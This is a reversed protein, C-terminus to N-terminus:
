LGPGGAEDSAFKRLEEVVAAPGRQRYLQSLRQEEVSVPVSDLLRSEELAARSPVWVSEDDLQVSRVYASMAEIEMSGSAGSPRIEFRGGAGTEFRQGTALRTEGEVPASGVSYAKGARDHVLWGLEFRRVGRGARNRLVIRPADSVTGTVLATGHELILPAESDQVFAFQIERPSGFAGATAPGEGGLRVDLRPRAAQRRLSAQMASALEGRGGAQWRALFFERDRRAEMERVRMKRASDLRDPGAAALTDFLVSDAAIRVVPGPPLPLPRLMRLNVHVQFEEGRLAHLSPISVAARGGMMREHANVALTMARVANGGEHRFRISGALEIVLAGGRPEFESQDFDTAVVRLPVGDPIEVAIKPDAESGSQATAAVSALTAALALGLCSCSSRKM